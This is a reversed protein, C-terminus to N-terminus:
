EPLKALTKHSLCHSPRPVKPVWKWGEKGTRKHLAWPWDSCTPGSFQVPSRFIQYRSVELSSWIGRQGLAGRAWFLGDGAGLAPGRRAGGWSCLRPRQLLVGAESMGGLLYPAQRAGSHKKKRRRESDTGQNDASLGESPPWWPPPRSWLSLCSHPPPTGLGAAM